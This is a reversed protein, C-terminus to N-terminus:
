QSGVKNKITLVGSAAIASLYVPKVNLKWFVTIDVINLREYLSEYRGSLGISETFSENPKLEWQGPSPDMFPFSSEKVIKYGGPEALVLTVNIRNFIGKEIVLDRETSNTLKFRLSYQGKKDHEVWSKVQVNPSPEQRDLNNEKANANANMTVILSLLLFLAFQNLFFMM